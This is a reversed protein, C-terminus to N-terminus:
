IQKQKNNKSLFDFSTVFYSFDLPKKSIQTNFSPDTDPDTGTCFLEPDPLSLFM